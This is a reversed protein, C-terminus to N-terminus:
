GPRPSARSAFARLTFDGSTARRRSTPHPSPSPSSEPPSAHGHPNGSFPSAAGSGGGGLRSRPTSRRGHLRTRESAVAAIGREPHPTHHQSRSGPLPAVFGPSTAVGPDVGLGFVGTKSPDPSTNSRRRGHRQHPTRRAGHRLTLLSKTSALQPLPGKGSSSEPRPKRKRRRQRTNHHHHARLARAPSRERRKKAGNGQHRHHQHQHVQRRHRRRHHHRRSAALLATDEGDGKGGGDDGGRRHRTTHRHSAPNSGDDDSAHSSSGGGGCRCRACCRWGCCWTQVWGWVAAATARSKRSLRETWTLAAEAELEALRAAVAEVRRQQQQAREACRSQLNQDLQSTTRDRWPKRWADLDLGFQGRVREFDQQLLAMVGARDTAAVERQLLEAVDKRMEAVRASASSAGRQLTGARTRLVAHPGRLENKRRRVSRWRSGATGRVEAGGGVVSHRRRAMTVRRSAVRSTTVAQVGGTSSTRYLAQQTPPTVFPLSHAHPRDVAPTAFTVSAGKRNPSRSLGGRGAGTRDRDLSQVSTRAAGARQAGRAADFSVSFDRLANIESRKQAPSATSAAANTGQDARANARPRTHPLSADRPHPSAELIRRTASDLEDDSLARRPHRPAAETVRASLDDHSTAHHSTTDGPVPRSKVPTPNQDLM